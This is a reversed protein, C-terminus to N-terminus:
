ILVGIEEGGWDGTKSGTDSISNNINVGPIQWGGHTAKFIENTLTLIVTKRKANFM